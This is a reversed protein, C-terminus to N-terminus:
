FVLTAIFCVFVGFVSNYFGWTIDYFESPAPEEIMYSLFAIIGFFLGALLYAHFVPIGSVMLWSRTADWHPAIAAFMGTTNTVISVRSVYHQEAKFAIAMPILLFLQYHDVLLAVIGSPVPCISQGEM